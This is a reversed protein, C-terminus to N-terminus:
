APETSDDPLFISLLLSVVSVVLAGFLAPWFGGVHLRHQLAM